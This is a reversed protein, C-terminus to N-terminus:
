HYHAHRVPSLRIQRIELRGSKKGLAALWNSVITWRVQRDAGGGARPHFRQPPLLAAPHKCTRGHGITAKSRCTLMEYLVVGFAWIDARRDVAKGRAQESAMYVATGLIVGHSTAHVPDM